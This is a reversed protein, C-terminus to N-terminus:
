SFEIRFKSYLIKLFSRQILRSMEPLVGLSQETTILKEIIGAENDSVSFVPGFSDDFNLRHMAFQNLSAMKFGNPWPPQNGFSTM